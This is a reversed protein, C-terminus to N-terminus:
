VAPGGGDWLTEQERSGQLAGSGLGQEEILLYKDVFSFARPM